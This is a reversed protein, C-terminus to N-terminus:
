FNSTRVQRLIDDSTCTAGNVTSMNGYSIIPLKNKFAWFPRTFKLFIKVSGWYNLSDLAHKKMYPLPPDFTMLTVSRAPPTVIAYDGSVSLNKTSIVSVTQADVVKEVRTDFKYHFKQFKKLKKFITEPLVSSGNVIEVFYPDLKENTKLATQRSGIIMHLATHGIPLWWFQFM